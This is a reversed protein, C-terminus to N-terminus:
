WYEEALKAEISRINARVCSACQYQVRRGETVISWGEPLSEAPVSVQTGCLSCTRLM